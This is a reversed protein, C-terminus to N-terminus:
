RKGHHAFEERDRVQQETAVGCGELAHLKIRLNEHSSLVPNVPDLRTACFRPLDISTLLTPVGIWDTDTAHFIVM